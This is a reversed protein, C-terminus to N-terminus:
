PGGHAAPFIGAMHERFSGATDVVWNRFEQQLGSLDRGAASVLRYRYGSPCNMAPGFPMVLSGQRIAECSEVYGCLVLGQGDIASRIGSSFQTLRIGDHLNEAAFGFKEGWSQWDAWDPDPTRGALHILPVGALSKRDASLDHRRAFEPTCVPLVHDAFLEEDRYSAPSPEGYRIAFDFDEGILDVMRNSADLRLDIESTLRYFDPLRSTFWHEAFSSPLTVALRNGARHRRLQDTIEGLASFSASLRAEIGQVAPTPRIGSGTRVFLTQDLFDELTRVQQGVAAATVGLERAAGRFSGTRLTAELARLSNLHTVRM